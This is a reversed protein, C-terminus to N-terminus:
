AGAWQAHRASRVSGYREGVFHAPLPRHDERDWPRELGALEIVKSVLGATFGWLLLGDVDFAPGVYGDPHSVM